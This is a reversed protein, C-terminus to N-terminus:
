LSAKQERSEASQERRVWLWYLSVVILSLGFLQASRVGGLMLTDGRLPELMLRMFGYGALYHAALVGTQPQRRAQYWSWFGLMVLAIAEYIQTPHRDVGLLHISWPLNSPLGYAEGSLLMGIMGIAQMWPLVRAITDLWPLIPTPNRRTFLWVILLGVVLAGPFAFAGLSLQWWLRPQALYLDLNFLAYWLRAGVLGGFILWLNLSSKRWVSEPNLREVLWNGLFMAFVLSLAFTGLAFPGVQILPKM